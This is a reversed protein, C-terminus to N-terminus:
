GFVTKVFGTLYGMDRHRLARRIAGVCSFANLYRREWPRDELVIQQAQLAEIFARRARAGSADRALRHGVVARTLALPAGLELYRQCLWNDSGYLPLRTDWGGIASMVGTSILMGSNVAFFPAAANAGVKLDAKGVGRGRWLRVPSVWRGNAIVGPVHLKALPFQEVSDITARLVDVPVLTDQDLLLLWEIAKDVAWRLAENYAGGVGPNSPDHRYELALTETALTVANADRDPEPSNDYTLVPLPAPLDRAATTLSRLTESDALTQGYLVVVVAIRSGSVARPREIPAM